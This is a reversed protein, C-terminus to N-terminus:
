ARKNILILDPRLVYVSWYAKWGFKFETDCAKSPNNFSCPNTEWTVMSKDGVIIWNIKAANAGLITADDLEDIIYIKINIGAISLTDAGYIDTQINSCCADGLKAAILKRALDRRIYMKIPIQKLTKLDFTKSLRYKQVDEDILAIIEAPSKTSYDNTAAAGGVIFDPATSALPFTAKKENLIAKMWEMAFEYSWDKRTDTLFASPGEGRSELYAQEECTYTNGYKVCEDLTFEFDQNKTGLECDDKCGLRKPPIKISGEITAGQLIPGTKKIAINSEFSDVWMPNGWTYSVVQPMFIKGFDYSAGSADFKTIGKIM